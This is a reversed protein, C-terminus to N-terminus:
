KEKIKNLLKQVLFIFQEKYHQVYPLLPSPIDEGTQQKVMRPVVSHIIYLTYLFGSFPLLVNLATIRGMNKLGFHHAVKLTLIASVGIAILWLTGM